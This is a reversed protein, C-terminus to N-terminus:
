RDAWYTDFRCKSLGYRKLYTRLRKEFKEQENECFSKIVCIMDEPVKDEDDHHNGYRDNGNYDCWQIYAFRDNGTSYMKAFYPVPRPNYVENNLKQLLNFADTRELNELMFYTESTSCEHALKVKEDYDYGHEGFWFETKIHPKDLAFIWGNPFQVFGSTSNVCHDIMRTYDNGWVKAYEKRLFQKAEKTMRM